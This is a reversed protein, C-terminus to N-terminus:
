RIVRGMTDYVVGDKRILLQGNEFFKVAKDTADLNYINTANQDEEVIRFGPALSGTYELYAKGAPVTLDSNVHYFGLVPTPTGQKGLVYANSSSTLNAGTAAGRLLNSGSFTADDATTSITFENNATGKIMLGTNAEVKDMCPTLTVNGEGVSSAVYATYGTAITNLDLPYCSSFTTWGEATITGSVNAVTADLDEGAILMAAANKVIAAANPTYTEWCDCSLGLGFFKNSTYMVAKDDTADINGMILNGSPATTGDTGFQVTQIVNGSTATALKITGNSEFTVGNLVKYLKSKPSFGQTTSSPNAPSGWDWRGDSYNFAKLGIMPTSGALAKLGNSFTKDGTMLETVVILDASALTPFEVTYAKTNDSTSCIIVNYVSALGQYIKDTEKSWGAKYGDQMVWAVNKKSSDHTISATVVESPDYDTKESRFQYTATSTVYYSAAANSWSSGGDTSVKLSGGDENNTPTITYRKNEFDFASVSVTPTACKLSGVNVTITSSQATKDGTANENTAICYFYRTLGAEAATPTYSYTLNTAGDIAAADSLNSATAKYWQVGTYHTATASLDIAESPTADIPSSTTATCTPSETDLPLRLSFGVLHNDGSASSGTIEIVSTEEPDLTFRRVTYSTSLTMDQAVGNIKVVFHKNKSVDENNDKALISFQTYGSVKIMVSKDSTNIKVTYYSSLQAPFENTATNFSTGRGTVNGKMWEGTINSAAFSTTFGETSLCHADAPTTSRTGAFWYNASSASGMAYIEYEYMVGSDRYKVPTQGYGGAGVSKVYEGPEHATLDEGLESVKVSFFPSTASGSANTAVCYYYYTGTALNNPITYSASTAGSVSTAGSTTKSTNKYWQYTPAPYGSATIAFTTTEGEIIDVLSPESAPSTISPAAPTTDVEKKIAIEFVRGNSDTSEYIYAIYTTSTTLGEFILETTTNGCSKPSGTVQTQTEGDYSFLAVYITRSGGSAVLFSVKEAGTFRLAHTKTTKNVTLVNISSGGAFPAVAGDPKTWSASTSKFDTTTWYSKANISETYPKFVIWGNADPTFDTQSVMNLTSGPIDPLTVGTILTTQNAWVNGISCLMGLLILSLLKKTKM